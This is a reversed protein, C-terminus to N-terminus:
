CRNEQIVTVRDDVAPIWTDCAVKIYTLELTWRIEAIIMKMREYYLASM